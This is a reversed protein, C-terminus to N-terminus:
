NPKWNVRVTLPLSAGRGNQVGMLFKQGDPMADYTSGAGQQGINTVPPGFPTKFLTIAKQITFTGDTVVSVAILQGRLDVYFLERGDKRWRPAAGGEASVQWRGGAPDPWTQVIIEDRGSENSTFALWRGNPSLVAEGELFKGQRYPQLKKDGTLMVRWLNWATDGGPAVRALVMEGTGHWDRPSIDAGEEYPLLQQEPVAGNAPKVFVTAQNPNGPPHRDFAIQTGDPSWVPHHDPAPDTTLRTRINRQLDYTWIDGGGTADGFAIKTGDPSLRFPGPVTAAEGLPQRAGSRDFWTLQRAPTQQEGSRYIITGGASVAFSGVEGGAKPVNQAVTVPDGTFSLTNVDFPRAMLTRDQVYFLRGNAYAANSDADMLRTVEKKGLTGVFLARKKPDSESWELFLFRQGDPLFQPADHYDAVKPDLTTVDTLDGGAAKISRLGHGNSAFLIVGDTNWTAGGPQGDVKALVQTTRAVVDFRALSGEVVYALQRGDPSWVPGIATRGSNTAGPVAQPQADELRRTWVAQRGDTGVAAYAISRGDPSLAIDNSNYMPGMDIDFRVEPPEVPAPRMRWAVGGAATAAVVVAVAWFAREFTASRSPTAPVPAVAAEVEDHANPHLAEDIDLRAVGIDTLRQKRDKELCRRLLRRIPPPTSAPVPAFDVDREIVRALVETTDDGKFARRGTLMEYLVCGFAWIDTRKDVAKGRAQEPSMYAATGLIVGLQTMAPTTITASLDSIRAATATPDVAKALGFDLVKVTGDPRVKVNAPKLDRHVIGQEHAAELAEAIQRAIPLAEDLPLPGAALRDELTPGEVLEMVLATMGNGRELGYVHAINTHNLSALTRAEREFRAMRDADQAFALPLVKVAVARGLNSDTAKYVEGMGGVGIQTSIEYSGIRSGPAVSM